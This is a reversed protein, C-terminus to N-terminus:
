ARTTRRMPPRLRAQQRKHRADSFTAIFEVRNLDIIPRM